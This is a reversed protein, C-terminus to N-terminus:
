VNALNATTLPPWVCRPLASVPRSYIFIFLYIPLWVHVWTSALSDGGAGQVTVVKGYGYLLGCLIRQFWQCAWGNKCSATCHVQWSPWLAACVVSLGPKSSLTSPRSPWFHTTKFLNSSNSVFSAIVVAHHPVTYMELRKQTMLDDDFKVCYVYLYSPTSKTQYKSCWPFTKRCKETEQQTNHRSM